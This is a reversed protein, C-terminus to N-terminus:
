ATKGSTGIWKEGSQDNWLFYTLLFGIIMGVVVNVNFKKAATYGLIVPLFYFISDGIANLIAYTGSNNYSTGLIFVLLANLGRIIGSACLPGLIPQFCGSIIDILKNFVGKPAEEQTEAPQADKGIGLVQCVDESVMPVHNGIVVQYQGASHMVTVVGDMNKLVDDNARSEDKLRFRLRTICHTVSSVNSEGGVNKVIAEALQRYKGM